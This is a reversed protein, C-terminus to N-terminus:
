LQAASLTGIVKEKNINQYKLLLSMRYQYLPIQKAHAKLIKLTPASRKSMDLDARKSTVVKASENMLGILKSMADRFGPEVKNNKLFRKLYANIPLTFEPFSPHLSILGVHDTLVLEVHRYLTKYTESAHLQKKSLKLCVMIDEANDLLKKSTKAELRKMKGLDKNKLQEILNFICSALPIFKDIGDSLQNQATIMHLIFPMHEVKPLKNKIAATIVVVLPYSLAELKSKCKILVAVWVNIAEVFQWSYVSLVMHHSSSTDIPKRERAKKNNVALWERRVNIGLDRISKFVFTYLNSTAVASYLEALCNQTLKFLSFNKLTRETSAASIQTRYSRNLLFNVSRNVFERTQQSSLREVKTGISPPQSIQIRHYKKDDLCGLYRQLLQLSYVRVTRDSHNALISCAVKVLEKQLSKLAVIWPMTKENGLTSLACKCLDVDEYHFGLQVLVSSLFRKFLLAVDVIQANSFSLETKKLYAEMVAFAELAVYNYVDTSSPAYRNVSKRFRESLQTSAMIRKRQKRSERKAKKRDKKDTSLDESPSQKAALRRIFSGYIVVLRKVSAPALKKAEKIVKEAEDTSIVKCGDELDDFASYSDDSEGDDSFDLEEGAQDDDSEEDSVDEMDYDSVEDNDSEVESESSYPEEVDMLGTDRQEDDDSDVRKKNATATAKKGKRPQRSKRSDVINTKM